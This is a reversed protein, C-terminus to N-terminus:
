NGNGVKSKRRLDFFLVAFFLFMAAFGSGSFLSYSKQVFKSPDLEKYVLNPTINSIEVNSNGITLRAPYVMGIGINSLPYLLPLYRGDLFDLAIHSFFFLASVLSLEFRKMFRRELYLSLLFIPLTLLPSHLYAFNLFKDFDPLISLFVFPVYKAKLKGVSVLFLLPFFIHSLLDV